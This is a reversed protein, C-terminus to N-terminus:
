HNTKPWYAGYTIFSNFQNKVFLLMMIMWSNFYFMSAVTPAWNRYLVKYDQASKRLIWDSIMFVNSSISTMLRYIDKKQASVSRVIKQKEKSFTIEPFSGDLMGQQRLSEDIIVRWFELAELKVEWDLDSIAAASM